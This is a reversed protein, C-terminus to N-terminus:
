RETHETTEEKGMQPFSLVPVDPVFRSPIGFTGSSPVAAPRLPQSVAPNVGNGTEGGGTLVPYIATM